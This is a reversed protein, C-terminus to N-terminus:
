LSINPATYQTVQTCHETLCVSATYCLVSTIFNLLFFQCLLNTMLWHVMMSVGALNGM